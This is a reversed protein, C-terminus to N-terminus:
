FIPSKSLVSGSEPLAAPSLLVAKEPTLHNFRSFSFIDGVTGVNARM